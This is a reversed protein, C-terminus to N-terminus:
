KKWINDRKTFKVKVVEKPTNFRNIPYLL